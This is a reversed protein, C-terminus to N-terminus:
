RAQNCILAKADQFMLGLTMLLLAFDEHKIIGRSTLRVGTSVRQGCEIRLLGVATSHSFM